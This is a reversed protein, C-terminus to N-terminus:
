RIPPTANPCTDPISHSVKGNTVSKGLSLDIVYDKPCHCQWAIDGIEDQSLIRPWIFFNSLNGNFAQDADLGGGLSDQDQGLFLRGGSRTPNHALTINERMIGDVALGVTNTDTSALVCIHSKLPLPPPSWYFDESDDSLILRLVRNHVLLFVENDEGSVAYSVIATVSADIDAQPIELWMCMTFERMRPVHFQYDVYDQVSPSPPFEFSSAPCLDEEQLKADIIKLRTQLTVALGKLDFVEQQLTAIQADEDCTCEGDAGNSGPAGDVGDIGPPGIEGQPGSVGQPGPPGQIGPLGDDGPLGPAAPLGPQGQIGPPGPPGIKSQNSVGGARICFCVEDTHASVLSVLIFVILVKLM